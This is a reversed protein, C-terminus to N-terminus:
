TTAAAPSADIPVVTDPMVINVDLVETDDRRELSVKIADDDVPVYKRIVDLLEQEMKKLFGSSDPGSSQRAIIIQLREKAVSSSSQTKKPFLFSLLSM